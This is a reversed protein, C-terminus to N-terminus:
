LTSHGSTGWIITGLIVYSLLKLHKHKLLSFFSHSWSTVNVLKTSPCKNEEKNYRVCHLTFTYLIANQNWVLNLAFVTWM